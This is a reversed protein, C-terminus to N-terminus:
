EIRTHTYISNIKIFKIPLSHVVGLIHRLEEFVLRVVFRVVLVSGVLVVILGLDVFLLLFV